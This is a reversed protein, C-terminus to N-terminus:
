FLRPINCTLWLPLGIDLCDVSCLPEKENPCLQASFNAIPAGFQPPPQCLAKTNIQKGKDTGLAREGNYM